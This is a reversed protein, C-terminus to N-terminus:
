SPGRRKRARRKNRRWGLVRCACIASRFNSAPDTNKEPSASYAPRSIPVTSAASALPVCVACAIRAAPCYPADCPTLPCVNKPFAGIDANGGFFFPCQNRTDPHGSQAVLPSMCQLLRRYFHRRGYRMWAVMSGIFAVASNLQPNM